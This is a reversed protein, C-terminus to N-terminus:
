LQMSEIVSKALIDALVGNGEVTPHTGERYLRLNWEPSQAIDVIKLGYGAAIRQLEKRDPAYDLGNKSAIYEDRSPYLFLIGPIKNGSAVSLEAVLQEFRAINSIQSIGRPPLENMDFSLFRPLVYRRFAYWTACLPKQTPFVYESRAPSLQSFGGNMYEWIFFKTTKIVDFNRRLYVMENLTTWGGVAAPWVTVKGNLRAQLLPGLKNPQDYVNGGMVISNGILLLNPKTSSGWNQNTGMSRDNFVWHNKNLFSGVQNPKVVYGIEDDVTYLPFDIIGGLRIAAEAGILLLVVALILGRLSIFHKETKM